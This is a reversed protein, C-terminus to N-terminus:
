DIYLVKLREKLRTLEATIVQLHKKIQEHVGKQVAYKKSYELHRNVLKDHSIYEEDTSVQEHEVIEKEHIKLAEQYLQILKKHEEIAKEHNELAKQIQKLDNLIIQYQAQLDKIDELWVRFESNWQKQDSYMQSHTLKTM